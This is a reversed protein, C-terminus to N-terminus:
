THRSLPRHDRANVSPAPRTPLTGGEYYTWRGSVSTITPGQIDTYVSRVYIASGPGFLYRTSLVALIQIHIRKTFTKTQKQNPKTSQRPGHDLWGPEVLQGPQCRTQRTADIM